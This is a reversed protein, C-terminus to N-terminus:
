LSVAQGTPPWCDSQLDNSQAGALLPAQSSLPRLGLVSHPRPM